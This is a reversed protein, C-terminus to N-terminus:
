RSDEEKLIERLRERDEPSVEGHSERGDGQVRRSDDGNMWLWAACGALALAVVVIIGSRM